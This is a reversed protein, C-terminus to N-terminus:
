YLYLSTLPSMGINSQHTNMRSTGSKLLNELKVLGLVSSGPVSPLNGVPSSTSSSSGTASGLVGDLLGRKDEQHQDREIMNREELSEAM